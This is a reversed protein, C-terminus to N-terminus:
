ESKGTPQAAVPATAPKVKAEDKSVLAQLKAEREDLLKKLEAPPVLGIKRATVDWTLGPYGSEVVKEMERKCDSDGEKLAQRYLAEAALPDKLKDMLRIMGRRTSWSSSSIAPMLFRTIRIDAKDMLSQIMKEDVVDANNNGELIELLREYNDGVIALLVSLADKKRAKEQQYLALVADFDGSTAVSKLAQYLAERAYADEYNESKRLTKITELIAPKAAPYPVDKLVEAAKRRVKESPSALLGEAVAGLKKSRMAVLASLAAQAVDDKKDTKAMEILRTELVDGGLMAMIPCIAARIQPDSMVSIDMVSAVCEKEQMNVPTNSKEALAVVEKRLAEREQRAATGGAVLEERCKAVAQELKVQEVKLAAIRAETNEILETQKAMLAGVEKGQDKFFVVGVLLAMAVICVVIEKM